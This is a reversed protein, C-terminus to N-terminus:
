NRKFMSDGIQKIGKFGIIIAALCVICGVIIMPYYLPKTPNGFAVYLLSPGTFCCLLCIAMTNLGKYLLTKDTRNSM